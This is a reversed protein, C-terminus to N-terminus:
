GLAFDQDCGSEVEGARLIFKPDSLQAPAWGAIIFLKVVCEVPKETGYPSPSRSKLTSFRSLSIKSLSTATKKTAVPVADFQRARVETPRGPPM